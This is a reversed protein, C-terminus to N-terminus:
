EGRREKDSDHAVADGFAERCLNPSTHVCPADGSKNPTARTVKVEGEGEGRSNLALSKGKGSVPSVSHNRM